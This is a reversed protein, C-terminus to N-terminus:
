KIVKVLRVLRTIKVLKYLKGVRTIRILSNASGESGLIIDFPIIALFDISFWGKLYKCAIEKRDDTTQYTESQYASNFNILIDVLFLLDMSLSMIRYWKIEKELDPFALNFPTIFCSILLVISIFIDWFIKIFDDPYFLFKKRLNKNTPNMIGLLVLDDLAQSKKPDDAEVKEQTSEEEAMEKM